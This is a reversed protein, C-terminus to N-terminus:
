GLLWQPLPLFLPVCGYIDYKLNSVFSPYSSSVANSRLGWLLLLVLTQTHTQTYWAHACASGTAVATKQIDPPPHPSIPLSQLVGGVPYGLWWCTSGKLWFLFWFVCETVVWHSTKLQFMLCISKNLTLYIASLKKGLICCRQMSWYKLTVRQKPGRAWLCRETVSQRTISSSAGDIWARRFFGEWILSLCSSSCLGGECQLTYVREGLVGSRLTNLPM